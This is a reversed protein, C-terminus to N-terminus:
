QPPHTVSIDRLTECDLFESYEEALKADYNFTLTKKTYTRINFKKAINDAKNVKYILLDAIVAYSESRTIDFPSVQQHVIVERTADDTQVIGIDIDRWVFDTICLGDYEIFKSLEEVFKQSKMKRTIFPKTKAGGASVSIKNVEFPAVITDYYVRVAMSKFTTSDFPADLATFKVDSPFHLSHVRNLVDTIIRYIDIFPDTESTTDSKNYWNGLVDATIAAKSNVVSINLCRTIDKLMKLSSEQYKLIVFYLQFLFALLDPNAESLINATNIKLVKALVSYKDSAMPLFTECPPVSFSESTTAVTTPEYGDKRKINKVSLSEDDVILPDVSDETIRRKKASFM